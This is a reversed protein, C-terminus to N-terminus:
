LVTDSEQIDVPKLRATFVCLHSEEVAEGSFKVGIWKKFNIKKIVCSYFHFSFQSIVNSLYVLSKIEWYKRRAGTWKYFVFSLPMTTYGVYKLM